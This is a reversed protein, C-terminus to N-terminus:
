TPLIAFGNSRTVVALNSGVKKNIKSKNMKIQVASNEKYNNEQRMNTIARFGKTNKINAAFLSLLSIPFLLSQFNIFICAQFKLM